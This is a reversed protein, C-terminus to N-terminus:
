ACTRYKSRDPIFTGIQIGGGDVTQVFAEFIGKNQMAKAQHGEQFM